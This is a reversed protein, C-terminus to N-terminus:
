VLVTVKMFMKTSVFGMRSYVAYVQLSTTCVEETDLSALLTNKKQEPTYEVLIRRCQM